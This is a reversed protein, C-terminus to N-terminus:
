SGSPGGAPSYRHPDAGPAKIRWSLERVDLSTLHLAAMDELVTSWASEDSVGAEALLLTGPDVLISGPTVVSLVAGTTSRYIRTEPADIAFWQLCNLWGVPRTWARRARFRGSRSHPGVPTCYDVSYSVTGNAPPELTITARQVRPRHDLHGSTAAILRWTGTLRTDDIRLPM